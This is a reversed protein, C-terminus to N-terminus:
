SSFLMKKLQLNPFRAEAKLSIAGFFGGGNLGSIRRLNMGWRLVLLDLHRVRHWLDEGVAQLALTLAYVKSISQISFPETADGLKFLDGDITQVAIGFKNPPM